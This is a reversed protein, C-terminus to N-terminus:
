CDSPTTLAAISAHDTVRGTQCGTKGDLHSEILGDWRELNAVARANMLGCSGASVPVIMGANSRDHWKKAHAITFSKPLIVDILNSM